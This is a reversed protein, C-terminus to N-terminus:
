ARRQRKSTGRARAVHSCHTRRAHAQAGERGRQGSRAAEAMTTRNAPQAGERERQGGRVPEAM